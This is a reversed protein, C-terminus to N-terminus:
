KENHFELRDGPEFEGLRSPHIELTYRAPTQSAYYPHWRTAICRDVVQMKENVWLIGLDFNMFFMHISSSIVSDTQEVLIIGEDPNLTKQFMLGRFKQFFRSCVKLKLPSQLGRTKNVVDFFTV